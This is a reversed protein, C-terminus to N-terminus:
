LSVQLLHIYALCLHLIVEGDMAPQPTDLSAKLVAEILAEDM